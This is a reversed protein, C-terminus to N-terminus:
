LNHSGCAEGPDKTGWVGDAASEAKRTDGETSALERPPPCFLRVVNFESCHPCRWNDSRSITRYGADYLARAFLAMEGATRERHRWRLSTMQTQYHLEFAIQSPLALSQARLMATLVDYEFGEIDMKMVAVSSLELRTLISSYSHFAFSGSSSHSQWDSRIQTSEEVSDEAGICVRHYRVRGSRMSGPWVRSRSCRPVTCDFIEVSCNTHLVIDKEFGIDRRSGISMVVCRPMAELGCLKKAGDGRGFRSMNCASPVAPM